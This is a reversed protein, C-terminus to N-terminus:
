FIDGSSQFHICKKSKPSDNWSPFEFGWRWTL